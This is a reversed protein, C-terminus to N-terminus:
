ISMVENVNNRKLIEIINTKVSDNKFGNDKFVVRCAEPKLENKLDVIGNVVNLTIDNDLCIILAGVGVSFVKKGSVEKVEIPYTLDIGYKLMIEYVVDEESRGPVFNDVMEDLRNAIDEFKPNWPKINSSELKFVKFGIDLDKIGEKDENEAIIKDGARRIREKGIESITEYGAKYAESKEDCKEPIQVMIYKRNGNDRTNMQMTVQATTGSGSFFDLVIDERELGIARFIGELLDSDKPNSFYKGGLLNKLYKSALRGDKFKISTLSQYQTDKLYTKLCPVTTEDKGFHVKGEKIKMQMSELPCFWGRSPKKVPKKTIPHFIDYVYQGDNPGSINDPFYVGNIDDFWTYHKSNSIPNSEPYQKFWNLARKHIEEWNDGCEKHFGEFARFIDDLGEKKEKWEGKNFNKNHVYFMIYEHQMSM